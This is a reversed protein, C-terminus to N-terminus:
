SVRREAVIANQEYITSHASSCTRATHAAAFALGSHNLILVLSAALSLHRLHM